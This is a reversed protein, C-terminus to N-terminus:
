DAKCGPTAKEPTPLVRRGWNELNRESCRRMARRREQELAESILLDDPTPRSTRNATRREISM